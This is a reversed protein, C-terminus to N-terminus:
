LTDARQLVYHASINLPDPREYKYITIPCPRTDASYIHSLQTQLNIYQEKNNFIKKQCIDLRCM